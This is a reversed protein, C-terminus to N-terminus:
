TLDYGSPRQNSDLLRLWGLVRKVSIHAPKKKHYYTVKVSNVNEFRAVQSIIYPIGGIKCPSHFLVLRASTTFESSTKSKSFKEIGFRKGIFGLSEFPFGFDFFPRPDFLPRQNTPPLDTLIYDRM